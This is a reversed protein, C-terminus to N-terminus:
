GALRDRTAKKDCNVSEFIETVEDFTKGYQRAMEELEGNLVEFFGELDQEKTVTRYHKPVIRGNQEKYSAENVKIKTIELKM